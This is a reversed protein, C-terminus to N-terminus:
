SATLYENFEDNLSKLSTETVNNDRENPHKIKRQSQYSSDWVLFLYFNANRLNLCFTPCSVPKSQYQVFTFLEENPVEENNILCANYQKQLNKM